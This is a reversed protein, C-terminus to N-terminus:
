VRAPNPADVRVRYMKLAKKVENAALKGEAALSALAAQAIYHRDVEFFRRLNERTDSRGYGDTGLV